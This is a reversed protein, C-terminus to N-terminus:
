ALSLSLCQVSGQGDQQRGLRWMGPGFDLRQKGKRSARKQGHPSLLADAWTREKKTLPGGTQRLADELLERWGAADFLAVGVAHKVFASVSAAEGAAILARVEALQNNELTITIKTTAM